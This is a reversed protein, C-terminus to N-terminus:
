EGKYPPISATRRGTTRPDRFRYGRRTLHEGSRRPSGSTTRNRKVAIGGPFVERGASRRRAKKSPREPVPAGGPRGPRAPIGAGRRCGMESISHGGGAYTGGNPRGGGASTPHALPCCVHRVGTQEAGEPGPSRHVERVNTVWFRSSM